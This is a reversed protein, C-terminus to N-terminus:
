PLMNCYCQGRCMWGGPLTRGRGICSNKGSVDKLAVPIIASRPLIYTETNYSIPRTFLSPCEKLRGGGHLSSKRQMTTPGEAFFGTAICPLWRQWCLTYLLSRSYPQRM